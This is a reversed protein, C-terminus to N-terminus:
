GLDPDHEDPHADRAKGAGQPGPADVGLEFQTAQEKTWSVMALHGVNGLGLNKVESPLLPVGASCFYRLLM